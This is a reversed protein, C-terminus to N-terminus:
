FWLEGGLFTPITTGHDTGAFSALSELRLAFRPTPRYRVGLGVAGAVFTETMEGDGFAIPVAGIAHLSFADGALRVRVSPMVAYAVVIADARVELRAGIAVGLGISPAGTDAM